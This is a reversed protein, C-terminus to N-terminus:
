RALATEVEAVLDHSELSPELGLAMTLHLLADASRGAAAYVTAAHLRIEANRPAGAVAAALLHVAEADNGRLHHVWGLTDAIEPNERELTHAKEALELAQDLQGQHVALTYALDNLVTQNDPSNVLIRRYRDVAAEFNRAAAYITALVLHVGIMREDFETAEEFAEVAGALDGKGMRTQGKVGLKLAEPDAGKISDANRVRRPSIFRPLETEPDIGRDIDNDRLTPERFPACLPDGVVVTQWSLYPMALYYAEVLNFGSLYAPFLIEPRIAADLYPEAVHGAVGSVGERILDGALSQPSEAFHTTQDEWSGITWGAPPEEFTRGDTSVFMGALAGSAFGLDFTRIEIAPDNSGWSYYGLIGDQGTIVEATSDLLVRDEFGLEALKEGAAQLWANAQQRSSEKQDLLVRGSRVPASGRDILRLVDTKTFGDLRSVLFIDQEGHTFRLADAVPAKGLFYPNEIFGQPPVGRGSLKRYLLALESDVSAVTGRRGATGAVRLPIGKTLVIYLIRDHASHWEIWAALPREIESLYDARSIEERAEVRLAVVNTDPISRKAEYYKGIELSVESTTNVVLLVNAGSQARAIGVGLVSGWALALM